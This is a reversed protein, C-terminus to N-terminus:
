ASSLATPDASDSVQDPAPVTSAMMNTKATTESNFAPKVVTSKLSGGSRSPRSLRSTPQPFHASTGTFNKVITVDRHREADADTPGKSLSKRASDKSGECQRFDARAEAGLGADSSTSKRLMPRPPLPHELGKETREQPKPCHSMAYDRSAFIQPQLDFRFGDVFTPSYNSHNNQPFDVFM